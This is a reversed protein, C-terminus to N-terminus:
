QKYDYKLFLDNVLIDWTNDWCRFIQPTIIFYENKISKASEILYYLLSTSFDIDPCVIIYYDINTQASIKHLDLHGYLSDGEYIFPKHVFKDNVMTDFLKYKEIFYEKSIKSENWNINFSSLNLASDIYIVDDSKVNYISQKLKDAFILAHDIEWPM